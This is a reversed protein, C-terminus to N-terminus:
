SVLREGPFMRILWLCCFALWLCCLFTTRRITKAILCSKYQWFSYSEIVLLIGFFVGFDGLAPRRPPEVM